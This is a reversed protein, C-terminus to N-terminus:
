ADQEVLSLKVLRRARYLAKADNRHVVWARAVQVEECISGTIEDRAKGSVSRAEKEAM